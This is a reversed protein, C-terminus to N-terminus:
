IGNSIEILDGLVMLVPVPKNVLSTNSVLAQPRRYSVVPQPQSVAVNPQAAPAPNIPPAGGPPGSSILPQVTTTRHLM